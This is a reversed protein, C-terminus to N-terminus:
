FRSGPVPDFFWRRPVRDRSGPVSLVALAKGASPAPFGSATKDTGPARRMEAWMGGFRSRVRSFLAAFVLAVLNYDYGFWRFLIHSMRKLLSIAIAAAAITRVAAASAWVSGGPTWFTVLRSPTASYLKGFPRCPNNNG